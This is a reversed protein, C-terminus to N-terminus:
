ARRLVLSRAYDRNLHTCSLSLGHKEALMAGAEFLTARPTVHFKALWGTLANAFWAPLDEQQGFDVVHLSGKPGLLGCAHDLAQEWEPIMSVTYSAFVRDFRTRGFLSQPSFGTADALAVRCRRQLGDGALKGRATRLMASSIDIGYFHAGPYRYAARALNRATGCGIELVHGNVPPALEAILRDRGLLYYKRTLDYIHRQFAYNADMRAAHDAGSAEAANAAVPM